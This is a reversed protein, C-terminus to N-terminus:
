VATFAFNMVKFEESGYRSVKGFFSTMENERLCNQAKLNPNPKPNFIPNSNASIHKFGNETL